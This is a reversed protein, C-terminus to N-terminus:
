GRKLLFINGKDMHKDQNVSIMIEKLGEINRASEGM